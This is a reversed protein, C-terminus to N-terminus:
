TKSKRSLGSNFLHSSDYPPSIGFSDTSTLAGACNRPSSLYLIYRKCYLICHPQSLGPFLITGNNGTSLCTYYIDKVSYFVVRNVVVFFCNLQQRHKALRYYITLFVNPFNFASGVYFFPLM